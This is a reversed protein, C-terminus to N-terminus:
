AAPITPRQRHFLARIVRAADRLENRALFRAAIWYALLAIFVKITLRELLMLSKLGDTPLMWNTGLAVIM